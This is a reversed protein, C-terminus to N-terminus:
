LVDEPRVRDSVFVGASTCVERLVLCPSAGHYKSWLDSVLEEVVVLEHRNNTAVLSLELAKLQM